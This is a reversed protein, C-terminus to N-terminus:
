NVAANAYYTTPFCRICLIILYIEYCYNRTQGFPKSGVTSPSTNRRPEPLLQRDARLKAEDAPIQLKSKDNRTVRPGNTLGPIARRRTTTARLRKIRRSLLVCAAHFGERGHTRAHMLAAGAGLAIEDTYNRAIGHLISLSEIEFSESLNVTQGRSQVNQSWCGIREREGKVEVEGDGKEKGRTIATYNLKTFRGEPILQQFYIYM